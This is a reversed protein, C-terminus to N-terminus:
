NRVCNSFIKEVIYLYSRFMKIKLSSKERSICNRVANRRRQTANSDGNIYFTAVNRQPPHSYKFAASNHMCNCWAWILIAFEHLMPTCRRYSRNPITACSCMTVAIFGSDIRLSSSSSSSTQLYTQALQVRQYESTYELVVRINYKCRRSKPSQWARYLERHAYKILM